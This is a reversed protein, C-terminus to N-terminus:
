ARRKNEDDKRVIMIRNQAIADEFVEPNEILSQMAYEEEANDAIMFLMLGWLASLAFFTYYSHIGFGLWSAISAILLFAGVSYRKQENYILRAAIRTGLASVVIGILLWWKREHWAWLPTFVIPAVIYLLVLISFIARRAGRIFQYPEGFMCKFGMTGSQVGAVFDAHTIGQNAEAARSKRAEVFAPTKRLEDLSPLTKAFEKSPQFNNNCTPCSIIKSFLDGSVEIPKECHPCTVKVNM